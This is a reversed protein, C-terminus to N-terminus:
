TGVQSIVERWGRGSTCPLDNMFNVIIIIVSDTGEKHKTAGGDQDLFNTIHCGARLEKYGAGPPQWRGAM